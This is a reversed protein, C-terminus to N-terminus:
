HYLPVPFNLIRKGRTALLEHKKMENAEPSTGKTQPFVTALPLVAECERAM